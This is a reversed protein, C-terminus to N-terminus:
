RDGSRHGGPRDHRFLGVLEAARTAARWAFVPLRNHATHGALDILVDIGDDHILQALAQDSLGVISRWGDCCARIRASLADQQAQNAYAFFQLRDAGRAHLATLVGDIFYGVPHRRLDGSVLGIRLSRGAQWNGLWRTYPQALATAFADFAQAELLLQGAPLDPQYNRIFLLNSRTSADTPDIEISRRYSAAAAALQGLDALANGLNNHARANDPALQLVQRYSAIAEHLRWGDRLANGLNNYADAAAPTIALARRYSVIAEDPQGLDRLANGLHNHASALNPQLALARPLQGCGGRCARVRM